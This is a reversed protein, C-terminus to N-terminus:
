SVRIRDVHGNSIFIPRKGSAPIKTRRSCQNRKQHQCSRFHRPPATLITPRKTADVEAALRFATLSFLWIWTMPLLRGDATMDYYYYNIAARIKERTQSTNFQTEKVFDGFTDLVSGTIRAFADLVSDTIHLTRRDLHPMRRIHCLRAMSNLVHCILKNVIERSDRLAGRSATRRRKAALLLRDSNRENRLLLYDPGSMQAAVQPGTEAEHASRRRFHRRRSRTNDSRDPSPRCANHIAKSGISPRLQQLTTTRDQMPNMSSDRCYRTDIQLSILHCEDSSM